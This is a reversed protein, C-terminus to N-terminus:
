PNDAPAEITRDISPADVKKPEASTQEHSPRASNERASVSPANAVLAAASGAAIKLFNRRDVSNQKSNVM